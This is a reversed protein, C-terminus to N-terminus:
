FVRSFLDNVTELSKCKLVCSQFLHDKETDGFVSSSIVGLGDWSVGQVGTGDYSCACYPHVFFTIVLISMVISSMLVIFSFPVMKSM